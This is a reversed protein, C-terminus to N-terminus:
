DDYKDYGLVFDVETDSFDGINTFTINSGAYLGEMGSPLIVPEMVTIKYDLSLYTIGKPLVLSILEIDTNEIILADGYEDNPYTMGWNLGEVGGHSHGTNMYTPPYNKRKGDEDDQKYDYSGYACGLSLTVKRGDKLIMYGQRDTM